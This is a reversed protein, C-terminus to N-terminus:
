RSKTRNYRVQWLLWLVAPLLSLGSMGWLVFSAHFQDLLIGVIISSAGGMLTFLAFETGFIRGRIENPANQLLLQTSFVWVIGGGVSRVFGGFLVTQFNFLPAIIAIGVAAIVYGLSISIRLPKDRDGTWHRALIPGIGSGVGNMCYMLGLSIAGGVGIVFHNEAIKIQVVQFGSSLLFAIVAKHMAIFFIDSHQRMYHLTTLMARAPHETTTSPQEPLKIGLLFGASLVFTLGDIVFAAQSGFLGTTLGGIAAGLALM